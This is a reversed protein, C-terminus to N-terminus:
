PGATTSYFVSADTLGSEMKGTTANPGMVLKRRRMEEKASHGRERRERAAPALPLMGAKFDRTRPCLAVEKTGETAHIGNEGKAVGSM